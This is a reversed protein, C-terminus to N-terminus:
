LARNDASFSNLRESVRKQLMQMIHKYRILTYGCWRVGFADHLVRLVPCLAAVPASAHAVVKSAEPSFEAAGLCTLPADGSGDSSKGGAIVVHRCGGSLLGLDELRLNDQSGGGGLRQHMEEAALVHKM